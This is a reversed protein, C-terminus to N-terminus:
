TWGRGRLAVPLERKQEKTLHRRHMNLEVSLDQKQEESLGEIVRTPYEIGLEKCARVRHHGDIINGYEDTIVPEIVGKELINERLAEYEDL